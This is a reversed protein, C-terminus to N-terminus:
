YDPTTQRPKEKFSLDEFYGRAEPTRGFFVQNGQDIVMVKNFQSYINKSAQYLSVFTTTEYIDTMVRLSKAYDLATSPDLGRTTNDRKREGGSVGRVFDEIPSSYDEGQVEGKVHSCTAQGVNEHGICFWPDPSGYSYSSQIDDEQNYADEGRFRKAFTEADFPGYFAEGDIGTYGFRQNAIVKLFTTCGSSPKGLVLVMEGPKVVGNFSKLIEFEKGKKGIGLMSMLTGPVNFSDICKPRIGAKVKAAQNGRLATEFDWQGETASSVEVDNQGADKKGLHSYRGNKHFISSLQKSLEAFEDEAREVGVGSHPHTMGQPNM